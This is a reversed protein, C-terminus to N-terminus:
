LVRGMIVTHFRPGEAESLAPKAGDGCLSIWSTWAKIAAKGSM